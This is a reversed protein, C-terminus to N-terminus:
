RSAAERSKGGWTMGETIRDAMRLCSRRIATAQSLDMHAEQPTEHIHILHFIDIITKIIESLIYQISTATM